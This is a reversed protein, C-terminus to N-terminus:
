CLSSCLFLFEISKRGRFCKRAQSLAINMTRVFGEGEGEAKPMRVIDSAATCVQDSFISEESVLEDEKVTM